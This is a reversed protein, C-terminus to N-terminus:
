PAEERVMPRSDTAERGVLQHVIDDRLEALKRKGAVMAQRLAEDSRGTQVSLEAYTNGQILRGWVADRQSPSLHSLVWEIWQQDELATLGPDSAGLSGTLDTATVPVENLKARQRIKIVWHVLAKKAYAIPNSITAWHWYIEELTRSAADQADAASAGLREALHALPKAHRRFFDDFSDFSEAVAAPEEDQRPPPSDGGPGSERQLM